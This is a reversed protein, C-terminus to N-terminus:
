VSVLKNCLHFELLILYCVINEDIYQNILPQYTELPKTISFHKLSRKKHTRPELQEVQQIYQRIEVDRCSM